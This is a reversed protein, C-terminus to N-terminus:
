RKDQYAGVLFPHGIRTPGYSLPFSLRTVAESNVEETTRCENVLGLLVNAEFDRSLPFVNVAGGGRRVNNITASCITSDPARGISFQPRAALTRQIRSAM